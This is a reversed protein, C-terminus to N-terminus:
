GFDGKPCRGVSTRALTISNTVPIWPIFGCKYQTQGAGRFHHNNNINQLILSSKVDRIIVKNVSIIIVRLLYYSFPTLKVNKHNLDRFTYRPITLSQANTSFVCHFFNFIFTSFPRTEGM